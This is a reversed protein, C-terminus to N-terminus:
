LHVNAVADHFQIGLHSVHLHRGPFTEVQGKLINAGADSQNGDSNEVFCTREGNTVQCRKRVSDGPGIRRGQHLDPPRADVSRFLSLLRFHVATSVSLPQNRNTSTEAARSILLLTARTFTLSAAAGFHSKDKHRDSQSMKTAGEIVGSGVLLVPKLFM